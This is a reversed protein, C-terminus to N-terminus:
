KVAGTLQIDLDRIQWHKLSTSVPLGEGTQSSVDVAVVFSRTATRFYRAADTVNYTPGGPLRQWRSLNTEDFTNLDPPAILVEAQYADGRFIVSVTAAQIALNPCGDPLTFEALVVGTRTGSFRGEGREIAQASKNLLRLTTVGKPILLRNGSFTVPTEIAWLGIARRDMQASAPTIPLRPRRSWGYLGAGTHRARFHHVILWDEPLAAPGSVYVPDPLFIGRLMSCLADQPTKVLRSTYSTDASLEDGRMGRKEVTAGPAVDGIPLVLRNFKVFCDELMANGPNSISVDMGTAGIEFRTKPTDPSAIAARGSVVRMDDARVRFIEVALEGEFSLGFQETIPVRSRGPRLSVATSDVALRYNEERPSYLGACGQVVAIDSGSRTAAVYLENWAPQAQVKWRSAAGIAAAGGILAVFAGVAWGREPSQTFRFAVLIALLGGAVLVLYALLTGRSPIKTGAMHSLITDVRESRELLRDSNALFHPRENLLDRWFSAAGPWAQFQLDGVDFALAIVQGQGINHTVILPNERTGLLVRGDDHVIMRSFVLGSSFEVKPGWRSLAPLTAIQTTSFFTVPLLASLAHAPASNTLFPGPAVILLGGAKVWDHIAETHAPSLAADTLDGLIIANFGDYEIARRPLDQPQLVSRAVVRKESGVPLGTLFRSSPFRSDAVIVLFADEPILQALVDTQDFVQAGGTTLKLTLVPRAITDKPDNNPAFDVFVPYEVRRLSQAPLWVPRAFSM